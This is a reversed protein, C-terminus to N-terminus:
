YIVQMISTVVMLFGDGDVRCVEILIDSAYYQYSGHSSGDGDVRYM